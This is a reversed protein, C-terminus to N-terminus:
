FLDRTPKVVVSCDADENRFEDRCKIYYIKEENWETVHITTNAYPMVTGESFSFDCNDFTYSCESNRVTVLKLLNDEEYIRAVVPANSDIDLKFEVSDEALNGGEDICRVYYKHNGDILDLRQTHIGDDTNTDFFQIFDNSNGTESYYCVARGNNCGFLTEVYLEVPSPSVAGFITENPKLNKMKLGTSGHLSFEYSQKMANRENESDGAYDQCRIYFNANDRPIGTLEAVCTFLQAANAQYLENNCVMTGQMNDFDQDQPSWRCEAPENTYFRVEASDQEEAVCGGNMISTAEVKPATTDPTPDVCFRVAYEAENENGNKDKCRVFFTLDKGNEITMSSNAIDKASPLSFRESHNYMFLNSGGVFTLMEDFSTTHEVSIKCQAPEDTEIGFEM